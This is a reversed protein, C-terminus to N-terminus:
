SQKWEGVRALMLLYQRYRDLQASFEL